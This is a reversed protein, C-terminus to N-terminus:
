RENITREVSERLDFVRTLKQHYCDRSFPCRLLASRHLRYRAALSVGPRNLQRLDEAGQAVGEIERLALRDAMADTRGPDAGMDPLSQAQRLGFEPFQVVRDHQLVQATGAIGGPDALKIEGVIEGELTVELCHAVAQRLNEAEDKRMSTQLRSQRFAEAGHEVDQLVASRDDVVQDLGATLASGLDRPLQTEGWAHAAGDMGQVLVPVARASRVTERAGRDREVRPDGEERLDHIHEM